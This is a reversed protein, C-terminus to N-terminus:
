TFILLMGVAAFANVEIGNSAFFITDRGHGADLELVKKVNNAKM